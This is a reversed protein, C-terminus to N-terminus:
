AGIVAGATEAQLASRVAERDDFPVVTDKFRQTREHGKGAILVLDGDEAADLAEAIATQRDPQVNLRRPHRAGAVIEGIIDEPAESRPNDSTVWVMDAGQEAVRGMRPRKDRDRDGGAGFVVLVRKPAVKRLSALVAELAHDTHAYDVLVRCNKECDVAELRGPVQSVNRLGDAVQAIDLGLSHTAGVAALANYVNHTGIMPLLVPVTAGNMTLSLNIGDLSSDKIEARIDASKKVGYWIQRACSRRILRASIPDDANLVAYNCPGLRTFLKEKARRYNESNGHYDMHERALNTFVAGAFQVFDIRRMCLAHSSVEMVAYRMQQAVMESMFEQVDVSEPTTISAPLSRRGTDYCITGLLGCREGTSELISRIMYCTTTKGNTGTVGIVELNRSPRGHFSSALAALARRADDVVFQPITDDLPLKSEAVVAVAGRQVADRAFAAGDRLHGRIAVFVWGPKVRRSDHAIGGIRIDAMEEPVADHIGPLIKPLRHLKV